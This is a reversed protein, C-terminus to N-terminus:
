PYGVWYVRWQSHPVAFSDKLTASKFTQVAVGKDELVVEYPATSVIFLNESLSYESAARFSTGDMGIYDRYKEALTASDRSQAITINPNKVEKEKITQQIYHSMITFSYMDPAVLQTTLQRWVTTVSGLLICCYILGVLLRAKFSERTQLLWVGIFILAPYIYRVQFDVLLVGVVILLLIPVYWINLSLKKTKLDLLMLAPVGIGLFVKLIAGKVLADLFVWYNRHLNQLYTGMSVESQVDPTNGSFLYQGFFLGPPHRLDFLIFVLHPLAYSGALLLCNRYNKEKLETFCLYFMVPATAFLALYHHHFMMGFALGIAISSLVPYKKQLTIFLVGISGWFVVLHPNWTWRSMELLPYWITILVAAPITWNRKLQYVCALLVFATIVGYFAMGYVPSVPTFNGAAAFPMVMYYTLSSFVKKNDNSIPGVLTIKKDKYYQHMRALDSSEDQTFRATHDLNYFRTFVVAVFFLALLIITKTTFTKMM